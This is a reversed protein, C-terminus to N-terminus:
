HGASYIGLQQEISPYMVLAEGQLKDLLVNPGKSTIRSLYGNHTLTCASGANSKM